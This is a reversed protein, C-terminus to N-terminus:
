KYKKINVNEQKPNWAPKPNLTYGLSSDFEQFDKLRVMEYSSNCVCVVM